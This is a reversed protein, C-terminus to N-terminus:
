AATLIIPGFDTVVVSHEFQATFSGDPTKLTWGDSGEVFDEAGTSVFTEVAIVQGSRLIRKDRPEYYNCINFPEEHLSKGVGHGCLTRIVKYGNRKATNEITKGISNLKQGTRVGSLARKLAESSVDLLKTLGKEDQGVILTYGTDAFYGNLELSVDLNLLDGEKLIRDNPIGHAIETNLSICTNGPFKYMLQPASKAGFKSFYSHAIRDLEKTSIGPKAAERMKVLTEATIRGVRKLAKLDEENRVTM